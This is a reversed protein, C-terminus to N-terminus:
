LWPVNVGAAKLAAKTGAYAAISIIAITLVNGVNLDVM